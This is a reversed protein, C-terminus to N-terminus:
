NKRQIKPTSKRKRVVADLDAEAEQWKRDYYEAADSVRIQETSFKGAAWVRLHHVSRRPEGICKRTHKAISSDPIDEGCKPCTVM